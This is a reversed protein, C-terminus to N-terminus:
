SKSSTSSFPQAYHNSCTLRPVPHQTRELQHVWLFSDCASNTQSLHTAHTVKLKVLVISRDLTVTQVIHHQALHFCFCPFSSRNFSSLELHPGIISIIVTSSTKQCLTKKLHHHHHHDHDHHHHHHRHRVQLLISPAQGM